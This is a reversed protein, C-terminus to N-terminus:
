TFDHVIISDVLLLRVAFSHFPNVFVRTVLQGAAFMKTCVNQTTGVFNIRNRHRVNEMSNSQLKAFPLNEFVGFISKFSFNNAEFTAIKFIYINRHVFAEINSTQQIKPAVFM